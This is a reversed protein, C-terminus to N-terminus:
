WCSFGMQRLELYIANTQDGGTAQCHSLFFHTHANGPLPVSGVKTILGTHQQQPQVTKSPPISASQAAIPQRHRHQEQKSRNSAQPREAPPATSGTSGQQVSPLATLDTTTHAVDGSSTATHDQLRASPRAARKSMSAQPAPHVTHAPPLPQSPEKGREQLKLELHQQVLRQETRGQDTQARLPPNPYLIQPTPSTPIPQQSYRPQSVLQQQEMQGSHVQWKLQEIQHQTEMKELMRDRKENETQRDRKANELQRDQKENGMAAQIKILEMKQELDKKEAQRDRRENELQRDRKEEALANEMKQELDKKEAQRDRRENELQRDRKEHEM